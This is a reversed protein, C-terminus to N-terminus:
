HKPRNKQKANFMGTLTGRPPPLYASSVSHFPVFLTTRRNQSVSVIVVLYPTLKDKDCHFTKHLAQHRLLVHKQLKYSSHFTRADLFFPAVARTKLSILFHVGDKKKKEKKKEYCYIIVQFFYMTELM